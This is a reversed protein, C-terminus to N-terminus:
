EKDLYHRYLQLCSTILYGMKREIVLKLFSTHSPYDALSRSKLWETFGGIDPIWEPAKDKKKRPKEEESKPKRPLPVDEMLPKSKIKIKLNSM